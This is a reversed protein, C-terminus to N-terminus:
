TAPACRSPHWSRWHQADEYVVQVPTRGAIVDAFTRPGTV